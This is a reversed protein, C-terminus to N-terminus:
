RRSKYKYSLKQEGVPLYFSIQLAVGENVTSSKVFSSPTNQGFLLLPLQFEITGFPHNMRGIKLGLSAFISTSLFDVKELQNLIDSAYKQEMRGNVFYPTTSSSLLFNFSAGAKVYPRVRLDKKSMFFKMEVPVGFYLNNQEVNKVRAYNTTLATEEVKWLFYERDSILNNHNYMFRVGSAITFRHNLSYEPKVGFYYRTITQYDDIYGGYYYDKAYYSDYYYSHNERVAAPKNITGDLFEIGAEVGIRLREYEYTREVQAFAVIPSFISLFLIVKKM